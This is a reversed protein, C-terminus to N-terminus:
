CAMPMALSRNFATGCMVLASPLDAANDLGAVRVFV